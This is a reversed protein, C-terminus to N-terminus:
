SGRVIEDGLRRGGEIELQIVRTAGVALLVDQQRQSVARAAIERVGLKKLASVALVSAEFDEGFTVVAMDCTQADVAQLVRPDTGDAVVAHAALAKVTELSAPNADILITEAGNRHLTEVLATGFSGIGIVLVRRAM